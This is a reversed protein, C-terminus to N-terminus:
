RVAALRNKCLEQMQIKFRVTVPSLFGLPAYIQGILSIVVRKTPEVTATAELMADVSFVLQYLSVNWCVRVKHETPDRDLRTPLTAEVFTEDAEVVNAHPKTVQPNKLSAEQSDVLLQFSPANM